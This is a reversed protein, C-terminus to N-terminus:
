TDLFRKPAVTYLSFLYLCVLLFPLCYFWSLFKDTNPLHLLFTSATLVILDRCAKAAIWASMFCKMMAYRIKAQQLMNLQLLLQNFTSYILSCIWIVKTLFYVFCIYTWLSLMQLFLVDSVLKAEWSFFPLLCGM